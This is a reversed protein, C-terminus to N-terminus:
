ARHMSSVKWVKSEYWLRINMLVLIHFIDVNCTNCDVARHPEGVAKQGKLIKSFRIQKKNTEDQPARYVLFM